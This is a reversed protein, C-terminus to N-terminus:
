SYKDRLSHIVGCRGDAPEAARQDADSPPTGGLVGNVLTLWSPLGSATVIGGNSSTLNMSFPTSAGLITVAETPSTIAPPSVQTPFLRNTPIIQKAQDESYWYLRAECAGTAEYYEM